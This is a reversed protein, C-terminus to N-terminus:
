MTNAHSNATQARVRAQTHSNVSGLFNNLDHQFVTPIANKGWLCIGLAAQSVKPHRAQSGRPVGSPDLLGEITGTDHRSTGHPITSSFTKPYRLHRIGHLFPAREIYPDM